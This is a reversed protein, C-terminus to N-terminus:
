RFISVDLYLPLPQAPLDPLLLLAHRARCIFARWKIRRWIRIKAALM